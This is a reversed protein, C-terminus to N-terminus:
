FSKFPFCTKGSYFILTMDQFTMRSFYNQVNSALDWKKYLDMIILRFQHFLNLEMIKFHGSHSAWFWYWLVLSNLSLLIKCLKM